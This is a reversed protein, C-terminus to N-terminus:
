MGFLVWHKSDPIPESGFAIESINTAFDCKPVESPISRCKNLKFLNMYLIVQFCFMKWSVVTKLSLYRKKVPETPNELLM